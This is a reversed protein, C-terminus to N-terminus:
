AEVQARGFFAALLPDPAPIKKHQVRVPYHTDDAMIHFHRSPDGTLVRPAPERPVKEKEKRLIVALVNDIIDENDTLKFWHIQQAQGKNSIRPVHELHSVVMVGANVLERVYKRAGSPSFKLLTQIHERTMECQRLTSIIANINEFRRATAATDRVRSLDIAM